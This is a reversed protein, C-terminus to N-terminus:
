DFFVHVGFNDEELSAMRKYPWKENGSPPMKLPPSHYSFIWLWILLKEAISKIKKFKHM